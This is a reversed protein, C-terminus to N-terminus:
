RFHSLHRFKRSGTLGTLGDLSFRMVFEVRALSMETKGAEFSAAVRVTWGDPSVLEIAGTTADAARIPLFLPANAQMPPLGEAPVTDTLLGRKQLARKWLYFSAESLQHCDCYDRVSLRSRQWRCIHQLWQQQKRPDAPRPM